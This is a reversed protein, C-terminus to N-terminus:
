DENEKIGHFINNRNVFLINNDISLNNNDDIFHVTCVYGITGNEYYVTRNETMAVIAVSLNVRLAYVNFFGFFAMLTVIYRRKQWFRWTLPELEPNIERRVLFNNSRFFRKRTYTILGIKRNNGLKKNM